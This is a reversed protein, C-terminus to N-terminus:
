TPIEDQSLHDTPLAYNHQSAMNTWDLLEGPKPYEISFITLFDLEKLKEPGLWHFGPSYYITIISAHPIFHIGYGLM